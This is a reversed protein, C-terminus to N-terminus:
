KRKAGCRGAFFNPGAMAGALARTVGSVKRMGTVTIALTYDGTGGDNIVKDFFGESSLRGFLGVRVSDIYRNITNGDVKEQVLSGPTISLVVSKGKPIPNTLPKSVVMKSSSSCGMLILFMMALIATMIIPSKKRSM